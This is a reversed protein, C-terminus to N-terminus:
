LNMAFRHQRVPAVDLEEVVAAPQFFTGRRQLPNVIVQEVVVPAQAVINLGENILANGLGAQEALLPEEEEARVTDMAKMANWSNSANNL